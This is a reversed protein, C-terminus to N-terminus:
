FIFKLSLQLQRAGNSLNYLGTVPAPSAATAGTISATTIGPHWYDPALGSYIGNTVFVPSNLANIAEGRLEFKYRETISIVKSLAFDLQHYGPGHNTGVGCTGYQTAAAPALNDGEYYYLGGTGALSAVSPAQIVHQVAPGTCNPRPEASPAGDWWNDWMTVPFGGHVTFIANAEWGGFIANAVPGMNSGVARGKGFPLDYNVYGSLVQTLDQNCLGYDNRVNYTSESFNRDNPSQPSANDGWRAYYGQNDSLCKSWVYNVQFALGNSLRKQASLQLAEYNAVAVTENLRASGLVSWYDLASNGRLFPNPVVAGNVVPGGNLWLINALHDSHSGVYGASVTTSSGFQHQLTFNWQNTVAPRWNPDTVHLQVGSYCAVNTTFNAISCATSGPGAMLGTFGQDLTVLGSPIAGSAGATWTADLSQVFPPNVPSRNFEGTGELFSSRSFAARIVTSQGWPTWALGVRPLFNAIGNYQKVGVSGGTFLAGTYEGYNVQRNGVETDPTFLQWRLGLNLTLQSNVRWDDQFFAGFASHRQGVYGLSVGANAGMEQPLGLMFDTLANGTYEGTFNLLGALGPKGQGAAIFDNRYRLAQFGFKMTHKGSTWIASDDVQGVTQHYFGGQDVTGFSNGILSGGFILSPLFATPQGAILGAGATTTLQPLNYEAPDYNAGFRLENVFTPSVTRTYDIVGSQLPLLANAGGNYTLPVSQTNTTVVHQQSYRGFIRDKDSANWDIKLDGQDSNTTSGTSMALNSSAQSNTPGPIIGLIAVATPSLCTGPTSSSTCTPLSGLNSLPLATASGPFHIGSGLASFDLSKEASTFTTISGSTPPLDFRSGQYDAFFFLKDKVIPGGITAGFQNWRQVPVQSDGPTFNRSWENANFYDNRLFEFLDGHFQNTGSKTNVVIVGGLFQGYEASPNSTVVNFEQIADVNPSFAVANDVFENNDMGDLIYYNAQERNGNIYPRGSNFTSQGATSFSGPTTTVAGPTLLTLQNYNRTALPLTSVSSAEMVTGLETKETQLLPAVTTVEVTTTVVGVKMQVDFRAIQGIDLHIKPNVAKEFGKAEISVTYNGIPLTPLDYIGDSNTQTTFVTGRDLDTAAVAAAAIPAGSPDTVTGKIAATSVQGWALQPLILCVALLCFALLHLKRKGQM